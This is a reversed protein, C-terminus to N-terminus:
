KLAVAAPTDVAACVINRGASKATYMAADAAQLIEDLVVGHQPFAAVGISATVAFSATGTLIQLEEIRRRARDAIRAGIRVDAGPLLAVFEEGGFRGVADYGRLELTLAAAVARLAADGALHGRDDNVAKFNDMDIVLVASASGDRSAKSLERQALQRWAAANLLDTKADTTAAEVLNSLLEHHQLLYAAPLILVVFWPASLVAVATFVGLALTTLHLLHQHGSGLYVQSHRTKRSSLSIVTGICLAGILDYLLAAALLVLLELAVAPMGSRADFPHIQMLARAAAASLLAVAINFGVRHPPSTEGRETNRTQTYVFVYLVICIVLDDPLILLSAFIWMATM